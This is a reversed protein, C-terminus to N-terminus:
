KPTKFIEYKREVRQRINHVYGNQEMWVYFDVADSEKKEKQEQLLSLAFEAMLNSVASTTFNSGKGYGRDLMFKHAKSKTEAKM